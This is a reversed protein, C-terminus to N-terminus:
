TDLLSIDCYLYASTLLSKSQMSQSGPFNITLVLYADVERIGGKSPLVVAFLMVVVVRLMDNLPSDIHSAELEHDSSGIQFLGLLSDSERFSIWSSTVGGYANMWAMRIGKVLM